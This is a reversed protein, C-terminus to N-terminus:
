LAVDQASGFWATRRVSQYPDRVQPLGDTGAQRARAVALLSHDHGVLLEGNGGVSYSGSLMTLGTRAAGNM